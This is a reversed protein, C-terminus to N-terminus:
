QEELQFKLFDSVRLAQLLTKVLRPLHPWVESRGVVITGSMARTAGGTECSGGNALVNRVWDTDPGYTLAVFFSQGDTFVYVPTRYRLGTSRGSHHIVAFRRFRRIIPEVFRNTFRKNLLAVWRPLPM